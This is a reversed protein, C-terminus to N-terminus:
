TNKSVSFISSFVISPDLNMWNKMTKKIKVMNGQISFLFEPIYYVHEAVLLQGDLM